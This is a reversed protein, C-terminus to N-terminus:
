FSFSRYPTVAIPFKELAYVLSDLRLLGILPKGTLVRALFTCLELFGGEIFLDFPVSSTVGDQVVLFMVQLIIM